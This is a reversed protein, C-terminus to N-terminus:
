VLESFMKRFNNYLIKFLELAKEYDSLEDSFSTKEKYNPIYKSIMEEVFRHFKKIDEDSAKQNEFCVELREDYRVLKEFDDIIEQITLKIVYSMIDSSIMVYYSADLLM